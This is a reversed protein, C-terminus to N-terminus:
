MMPKEYRKPKIMTPYHFLKQFISYVVEQDVRTCIGKFKNWIEKPDKLNIINFAIQDKVGKKIIQQVIDVAIYAQKIEKM